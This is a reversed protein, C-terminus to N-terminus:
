EAPAATRRGPILRRFNIAGNNMALAAIIIVGIVISHYQADVNGLNLANQIFGIIVVGILAGVVSGYGGGTISNGGVVIATIVELEMGKGAVYYAQQTIAAQIVGGIGATLASVTFAITRVRRSDIGCLDSTVANGGVALVKRGYACRKLVFHSFFVIGLMIFIPLPFGGIKVVGIDIFSRPQFFPITNGNSIFMAIGLLYTKAAMTLIFAPVEFRTIILGHIFGIAAAITITLFIAIPVPLGYDNTFIFVLIGSLGAMSGVSLDVGGSIPVYITGAVMIGLISISWLVNSINSWSRFAPSFTAMVVLLAMLILAMKNKEFLRNFLMRDGKELLVVMQREDIGIFSARRVMETNGAQM